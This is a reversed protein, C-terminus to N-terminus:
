DGLLVYTHANVYSHTDVMLIPFGLTCICAQIRSVHIRECVRVRARLYAHLGVEGGCLRAHISACARLRAHACM